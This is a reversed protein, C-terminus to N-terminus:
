ARRPGRLWAFARIALGQNVVLGMLVAATGIWQAPSPHEGFSLAAAALGVMTWAFIRKM